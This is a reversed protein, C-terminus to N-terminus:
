RALVFIAMVTMAATDLILVPVFLPTTSVKRRWFIVYTLSLACLAALVSVDAVAAIWRSEAASIALVVVTAGLRVAIAGRDALKRQEDGIQALSKVGRM